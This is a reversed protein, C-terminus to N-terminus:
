PTYGLEDIFTWGDTWLSGSTAFAGYYAVNDFFADSLSTAGNAAPGAANPRPNLGGNNTRSTGALQPDIIDNDNGLLHTRVFDQKVFDALNPGAGFGYWINNSLVLDGGELRARSDEGSALDEVDVGEGGFETFISNYYKGGANDRIKFVMNSSNSSASGSGIYTVNSIVPIAYPTGDEPETGGDHEGARDGDTGTQISLWFQGKGRFGEDYDFCDDGNFASVLYKTNVTGGFWEFGDDNNYFVEIHDITTGSGVAGMTLGNIENGEGIDTGGYRISVYRLIGSDDADDSGGYAGRPETSPIGEIQGQGAATNIRAEGLLIVGGWLGRQGIQIDGPDTVDDFESTFIIPSTATGAAMIKGGRAVILASANAGQGSRGKIVTGPEITLTQGSNVFVFGDLIWTTDSNWTMTGTGLGYDKVTMTVNEADYTFSTERVTSSVGNDDDSCGGFVIVLSLTLM